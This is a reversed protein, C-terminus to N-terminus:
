TAAQSCVRGSCRARPGQRPDRGGLGQGAGRSHLLPDARLARPIVFAAPLAVTGPAPQGPTEAHLERGNRARPRAPARDKQLPLSVAIWPTVSPANPGPCASRPLRRHQASGARGPAQTHSRAEKERHPHSRLFDRALPEPIRPKLAQGASASLPAWLGHTSGCGSLKAKFGMEIVLIHM